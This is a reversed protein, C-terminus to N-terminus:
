HWVGDSGMEFETGKLGMVMGQFTIVGGKGDIVVNMTAGFSVSKRRKPTVVSEFVKLAENTEGFHGYFTIFCNTAEIGM